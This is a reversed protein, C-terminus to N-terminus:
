SGTISKRCLRPREEVAKLQVKLQQIQKQLDENSQASLAVPALMAVLALMIRSNM